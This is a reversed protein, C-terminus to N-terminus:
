RRLKWASEPYSLYYVHKFGRTDCTIDDDLRAKGSNFVRDSVILLRVDSIKMAYKPLNRAKRMIVRDIVDKDINSVWGVNDSVYSWRKYTGLQDPLRLVYIACGNYPEIRKEELESLQPVARTISSL